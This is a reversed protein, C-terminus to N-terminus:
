GSRRLRRGRAGGGRRRPSQRPEPAHTRAARARGPPPRRDRERPRGVRRSGLLRRARHDAAGRDIDENLRDGPPALAQEDGIEFRRDDLVLHEVFEGLGEPQARPDGLDRATRHIALDIEGGRELSAHREEFSHIPANELLRGLPDPQGRTRPRQDRRHPARSGRRREDRAPERDEGLRDRRGEAKSRTM